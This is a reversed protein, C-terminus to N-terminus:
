QKGVTREKRRRRSTVRSKRDKRSTRRIREQKRRPWRMAWAATMEEIEQNGYEKEKEDARRHDKLM